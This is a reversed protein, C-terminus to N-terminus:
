GAPRIEAGFPLIALRALKIHQRGFPIGLITIYFLVGTIIHGVALEWGFLIIWIVNGIARGVGFQGISVDKGFPLLSFSAIKFAQIGLPIGIITICLLLGSIAWGAAAILGGFIVWILNGLFKM